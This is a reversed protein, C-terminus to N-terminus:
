GGSRGLAPALAHWFHLILLLNFVWGLVLRFPPSRTRDVRRTRVKGKLRAKIAVRTRAGISAKTAGKLPQMKVNKPHLPSILLIRLQRPLGQLKQFPGPKHGYQGSSSTQRKVPGHEPGAFVTLPPITSSSPAVAPSSPECLPQGPDMGIPRLRGPPPPPPTNGLPAPALPASTVPHPLSYQTVHHPLSLFDSNLGPYIFTRRFITSPIHVPPQFGTRPIPM